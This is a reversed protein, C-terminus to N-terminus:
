WTMWKMDVYKSSSSGINLCKIHVFLTGSVCCRFTPLCISHNVTVCVTLFILLVQGGQGQYNVVELYPSGKSIFKFPIHCSVSIFLHNM